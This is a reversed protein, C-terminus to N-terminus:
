RGSSRSLRVARRRPSVVRLRATADGRDSRAVGGASGKHSARCPRSFCAHSLYAQRTQQRGERAEWLFGRGARVAGKSFPPRLRVCACRRVCGRMPHAEACRVWAVPLALKLGSCVVGCRCWERRVGRVAVRGRQFLPGVGRLPPPAIRPQRSADRLRLCSWRWHCRPEQPLGPLASVAGAIGGSLHAPQASRVRSQRTMVSAPHLAGLPISEEWKKPM